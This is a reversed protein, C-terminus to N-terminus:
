QFICVLNVELRGTYCESFSLRSMIIFAFNIKDFKCDACCKKETLPMQNDFGTNHYYM